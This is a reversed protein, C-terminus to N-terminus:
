SYSPALVLGLSTMQEGAVTQLREALVRSRESISVSEACMDLQTAVSVRQNSARVLGLISAITCFPLTVFVTMQDSSLIATPSSSSPSASPAAATLAKVGFGHRRILNTFDEFEKLTKRQAALGAAQHAALAPLLVVTSNLNCAEFVQSNRSQSFDANSTQLQSALASAPQLSFLKPLFVDKLHHSQRAQNKTIVEDTVPAGSVSKDKATGTEETNTSEAGVTGGLGATQGIRSGAAATSQSPTSSPQGLQNAAGTIRLDLAVNDSDLMHLVDRPSIMAVLFAAPPAAVRPGAGGKRRPSGAGSSGSATPPSLAATHDILAQPLHQKRMNWVADGIIKRVNGLLFCHHEALVAIMKPNSTYDCAM